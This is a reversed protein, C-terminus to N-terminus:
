NNKKELLPTEANGDDEEEAAEELLMSHDEKESSNSAALEEEYEDDSLMQVYGQSGQVRIKQGTKILRTANPVCVVAPIGMERAVVSGHTQLGGVEM